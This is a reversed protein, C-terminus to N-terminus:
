PYNQHMKRSFSGNKVIKTHKSCKPFKPFFHGMTLTKKNFTPGMYLSKKHFLSRNSRCMDRIDKYTLQGGGGLGEPSMRACYGLSVRWSDYIGGQILRSELPLWLQSWLGTSSLLIFFVHYIIGECNTMISNSMVSRCRIILCNLKCLQIKDVNFSIFQNPEFMM